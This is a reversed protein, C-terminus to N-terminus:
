PTLLDALDLRQHGSRGGFFDFFHKANPLHLDGKHVFEPVTARFRKLLQDELDQIGAKALANTQTTPEFIGFSAPYWVSLANQLAKKAEPSAKALTSIMLQSHALGAQAQPIFTLALHQLGSYNAYQLNELRILDAQDFLYQKFLADAYASIPIAVFQCSRFADATSRERFKDDSIDDLLQFYAGAQQYYRRTLSRFVQHIEKNPAKPLWNELSLGMIFKDDALRLVLDKVSLALSPNLSM